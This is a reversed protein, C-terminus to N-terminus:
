RRDRRAAGPSPWRPAAAVARPKTSPPSCPEAVAGPSYPLMGAIRGSRDPGAVVGAHHVAGPHHHRRHDGGDGRSRWRPDAGDARPWPPPSAHLVVLAILASHDLGCLRGLAWACAPMAVLKALATVALLLPCRRILAFELEAGTMILALPVAADRDAVPQRWRRTTSCGPRILSLGIGVLCVIILPNRPLERLTQALGQRDVGHHPAMFGFVAGVNFSPVMAGMLVVYIGELYQQDAVPLSAM